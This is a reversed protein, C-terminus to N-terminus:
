SPLGSTWCGALGMLGMILFISEEECVHERLIVSSIGFACRMAYSGLEPCFLSIGICAHQNAGGRRALFGRPSLVPM